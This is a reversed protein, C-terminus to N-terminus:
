LPNDKYNCIYIQNNKGVICPVIDLHFDGSYEISACRTKRHTKEAYLSSAKLCQNLDDIYDRPTKTEDYEVTILIDADYEKNSDVPKIITGLAYSGQPETSIYGDLNNSLFQKIAYVSRNLGDIRTQNLNVQERLFKNFFAIHKM